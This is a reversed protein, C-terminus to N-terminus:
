NESSTFGFIINYIIDYVAIQVSFLYSVGHSESSFLKYCKLIIFLPM